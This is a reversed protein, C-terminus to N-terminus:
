IENKSYSTGWTAQGGGLTNPAGRRHYALQMGQFQRPVHQFFSAGILCPKMQLPPLLAGVGANQFGGLAYQASTMLDTAPDHLLPHLNLCPVIHLGLPTAGPDVDEMWFPVLVPSYREM